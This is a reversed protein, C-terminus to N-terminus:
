KRFSVINGKEGVMGVRFGDAMAVAIVSSM